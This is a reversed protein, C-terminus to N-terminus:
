CCGVLDVGRVRGLILDILVLVGHSGHHAKAAEGGGFTLLDVSVGGSCCLDFFLASPSLVHVPLGGRGRRKREKGRERKEEKKRWSLKRTVSKGTM